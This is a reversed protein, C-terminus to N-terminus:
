IAPGPQRRPRSTTVRGLCRDFTLWAALLLFVAAALYCILWLAAALLFVAEEPQGGMELLSTLVGVGYFPSAEMLAPFLDDPGRGVLASVVFLWGVSVFVYAGVSAAIARGPRRIWIALALGLSTLAAGYALVLGPILPVALWLSGPDDTATLALGLANLGPLVALWPVGRYVGWWKAWVISETPLPTALLLDLSGQVREESLATVAAISLLLLGVSAQLGGVISLFEGRGSTGLRFGLGLLSAGVALLGYLLWIARIWRSPRRRQWERWLLPSRDLSPGPLGLRWWRRPLAAPLRFRPRPPQGAQRVAVARVRAMGVGALVAALALCVGLFVLPETWDTAGPNSYPAFALWFPNSCLLAHPTPGLVGWASFAAWLPVALLAVIWAMYTALLVEYPRSGWVSLTLALACGVVAVGVTILVAATLAGPDIGGLLLALFLVPAGCAVLGLVSALRAALKGLVIETNSLDTVLLHTLTGRAKDRCVAGATAAPAALLVLVLQISVLAEFFVQGVNAQLRQNPDPSQVAETQWVAFLAALLFGLFAVRGAYLQWRRAALQWELVFVPGLGWRRPMGQGKVCDVTM